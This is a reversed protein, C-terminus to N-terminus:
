DRCAMLYLLTISKKMLGVFLKINYCYCTLMPLTSFLHMKKRDAALVANLETTRIIAAAIKDLRIHDEGVRCDLGLLPHGSTNETKGETPEVLARNSM